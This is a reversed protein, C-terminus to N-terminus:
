DRSRSTGEEIRLQLGDFVRAAQIFSVDKKRVPDVAELKFEGRFEKEANSVELEMLFM